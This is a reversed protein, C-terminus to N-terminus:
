IVNADHKMYSCAEHQGPTAATFVLALVAAASLPVAAGQNQSSFSKVHKLM